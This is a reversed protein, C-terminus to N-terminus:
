RGSASKLTKAGGITTQRDGRVVYTPNSRTTCGGSSSWTIGAASFQSAASARTVASAPLACVLLTTLPLLVAALLSRPRVGGVRRATTPAAESITMIPVYARCLHAPLRM